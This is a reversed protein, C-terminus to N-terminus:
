ERRPRPRGEELTRWRIPYQQLGLLDAIGCQTQGVNVIRNRYSDTVYYSAVEGFNTRGIRVRHSDPIFVTLAHICNSVRMPDHTIDITKYQIAGSDLRQKHQIARGYLEEEIEYPGWASVEEDQSLVVRFTTPLDFTAGPEPLAALPRLTVAEPFWSITFIEVPRIPQVVNPVVDPIRVFTAWSHSYKPRQPKSEAGFVVVYFTDARAGAALLVLAMGILLFRRSVNM